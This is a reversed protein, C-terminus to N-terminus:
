TRVLKNSSELLSTLYADAKATVTYSSGSKFYTESYVGDVEFSALNSDSSGNVLLETTYVQAALEMQANKLSQPISDSPILFDNAYVGYRPFSLTQDIDVRSGKYDDELSLLYDGAKIQLIDRDSETAAITYGRAAAYAVFEADTTYSDANAVISGDEITLMM